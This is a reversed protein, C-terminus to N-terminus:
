ANMKTRMPVISAGRGDQGRRRHPRLTRAAGSRWPKKNRLPIDRQFAAAAAAGGSAEM